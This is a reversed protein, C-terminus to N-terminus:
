QYIASKSLAKRTEICSECSIGLTRVQGARVEIIDSVKHGLNVWCWPQVNEVIRIVVGNADLGICDINFKMFCTHIRRSNSLWVGVHCKITAIGILGIMKEIRWRPRWTNLFIKM